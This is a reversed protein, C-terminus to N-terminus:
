KVRIEKAYMKGDKEAYKVAVSQKEMVFDTITTAKEM